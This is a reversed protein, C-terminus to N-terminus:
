VHKDDDISANLKEKFV